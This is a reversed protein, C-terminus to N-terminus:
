AAVEGDGVPPLIALLEDRCHVVAAQIDPTITGSPADIALGSGDRRVTAGVSQLILLVLCASM